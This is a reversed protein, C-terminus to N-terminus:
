ELLFVPAFHTPGSHSTAPGNHMIRERWTESTRAIFTASERRCVLPGARFEDISGSYSGRLGV